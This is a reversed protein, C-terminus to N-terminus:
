TKKRRGRKSRQAAAKANEVWQILQEADKFIAPPVQYYSMEVPTGKRDYVFPEMGQATYDARNGDDIKFYVTQYAILGFMVGETYLGYGGFMGRATVPAVQNLQHIVRDKHAIDDPAPM